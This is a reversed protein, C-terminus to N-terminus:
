RAHRAAETGSEDGSSMRGIETRGGKKQLHARVVPALHVTQTSLKTTSASHTSVSVNM